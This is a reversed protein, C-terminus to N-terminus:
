PSSRFLSETGNTLGSSSVIKLSRHVALMGGSFSSSFAVAVGKVGVSPFDLDSVVGLEAVLEMVFLPLSSSWLIGGSLRASRLAWGSSWSREGMVGFDVESAGVWSWGLCRGCRGLPWMESVSLCAGVSMGEGFSGGESGGVEAGEERRVEETPMQPEQRWFGVDVFGASGM